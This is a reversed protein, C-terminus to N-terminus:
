FKYGLKKFDEFYLKKVIKKIEEDKYFNKYLVHKDENKIILNNKIYYDYSKNHLEVDETFINDYGHYTYHPFEMSIGNSKLFENIKENDEIDIFTIFSKSKADNVNYFDSQPKFHTDKKVNNRISLYKVFEEFSVRENQNKKYHKLSNKVIPLKCTKIVKNLYGSVLRDYPNRKLILLKWNEKTFLKSNLNINILLKKIKSSWLDRKHDYLGHHKLVLTRSSCLGIKEITSIIVKEKNFKVGRLVM